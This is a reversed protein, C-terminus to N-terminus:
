RSWGTQKLQQLLEFFIDKRSGRADRIADRVIAMQEAKTRRNEAFADNRANLNKGINSIHSGAAMGGLMNQLMGANTQMLGLNDQTNQSQQAAMAQSNKSDAALQNLFSSDGIGLKSLESQADSQGQGYIGGLQQQLAAAAANQAIGAQQFMAQNQQGMSGLYDTVEKNIYELDGKGRQYQVRATDNAKRTANSVEMRQARLDRIEDRIVGNTLRRAIRELNGGKGGRGKNANTKSKPKSAAPKTKTPPKPGKKSPNSAVLFDVERGKNYKNKGPDKYAERTM